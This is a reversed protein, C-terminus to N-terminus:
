TTPRTRHFNGGKQELLRRELARYLGNLLRGILAVLRFLKERAAAAIYTQREAMELCTELEGHSGLAISRDGIISPEM